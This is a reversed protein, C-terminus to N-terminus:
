GRARRYRVHIWRPSPAGEFVNIAKGNTPKTVVVSVRSRSDHRIFKTSKPAAVSGLGGLLYYYTGSGTRMSLLKGSDDRTYSTGSERTLGLGSTTYSSSGASVRKFQGTGTYSMPIPGGGRGKTVRVPGVVADLIERPRVGRNITQNLGNRTFGKIVGGIGPVCFCIRFPPAMGVTDYINIPDQFAYDYPNASGGAVPDVQTFRGLTPDYYRTGM